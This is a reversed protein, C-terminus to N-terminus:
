NKWFTKDSNLNAGKRVLNLAKRLKAQESDSKEQSKKMASLSTRQVINSILEDTLKVDLFEAM